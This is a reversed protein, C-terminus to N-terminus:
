YNKKIGEQKNRERKEMGTKKYMYIRLTKLWIKIYFLLKFRILKFDKM